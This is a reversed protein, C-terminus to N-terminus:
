ASFRGDTGPRYPRDWHLLEIRNGDPDRVFFRDAAAIEVVVGFRHPGAPGSQRGFMAPPIKIKHGHV